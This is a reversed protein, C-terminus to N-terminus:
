TNYEDKHMTDLYNNNKQTERWIKRLSLYETETGRQTFRRCKEESSHMDLWRSGKALAIAPIKDEGSFDLINVPERCDLYLKRFGGKGGQVYEMSIALGYEQYFDEALDELEGSHAQAYAEELIWRLSKMRDACLTLVEPICSAAGLIIFHHCTAFPLLQKVWPMRAYATFEEPKWRPRFAKGIENEGFLVDKVSKDYVCYCDSSDTMWTQLSGTLNDIANDLQTGFRLTLSNMYREYEQWDKKWRRYRLRERVYVPNIWDWGSLSRGIIEEMDPKAKKEPSTIECWHRTDLSIGIKILLFSKQGIAEVLPEKLGRKSYFYLITDM